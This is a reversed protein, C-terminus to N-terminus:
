DAAPQDAESTPESPEVLAVVEAVITPEVVEAAVETESVTPEALEAAVEPEAIVEPEPEPQGPLPDGFNFAASHGPLFRDLLGNIFKTSNPSGYRKALELAENVAVNPPTDRGGKQIEYLGIRLINRDLAAMRDLRWNEAVAQIHADLEPKHSEVGEILAKTYDLLLPTNKMRRRVFTNVQRAPLGPNLDRQYLTQLAVERCRTRRMGFVKQVYGVM